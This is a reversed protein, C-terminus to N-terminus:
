PVPADDGIPRHQGPVPLRLELRLQERAMHMEPLAQSLGHVRRAEQEPAGPALGADVEGELVTEVFAEDAGEIPGAMRHVEDLAGIVLREAMGPRQGAM